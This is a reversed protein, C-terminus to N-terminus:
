SATHIFVERRGRLPLKQPGTRITRILGRVLGPLAGHVVHPQAVRREVCVMGEDLLTSLELQREGAREDGGPADVAVRPQGLAEEESYGFIRTAAANWLVIKEHADAVIVADGICDLLQLLDINTKM